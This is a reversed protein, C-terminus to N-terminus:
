FDSGPNSLLGSQDTAFLQMAEDLYAPQGLASNTILSTNYTPGFLVHGEYMMLPRSILFPCLRVGVWLNQGIGPRETIIPINHQQLTAKPGIGSVM